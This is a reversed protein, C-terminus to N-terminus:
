QSTMASDKSGDRDAGQRPRKVPPAMTRRRRFPRSLPNRWRSQRRVLVVGTGGPDLHLEAERRLVLDPTGIPVVLVTLSSGAPMAAMEKETAGEVVELASDLLLMRLETALRRREERESEPGALYVVGVGSALLRRCLQPLGRVVEGDLQVSGLVPAGTVEAATRAGLVPRRWTLLVAVIGVGVLLGAALGALVLFASSAVQIQRVTGTASSQVAFTGVPDRYKNLEETLTGAATNAINVADEPTSAHGVVTFVVNDQPAVLEARDPVVPATDTLDLEQRVAAAVAGNGFVTEVTKPLADLNRLQIVSVPGVQASADFRDATTRLLVQPVSVGLILVSAVVVWAYRRLGWAIASFADGEPSM